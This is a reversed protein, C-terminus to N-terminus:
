RTLPRRDSTLSEAGERKYKLRQKLGLLQDRIKNSLLVEIYSNVLIALAISFGTILIVGAFGQKASNLGISDMVNPYLLLVLPHSLYLSYSIDGLFNFPKLSPVRLTKSGIACSAFFPILSIGWNCIGHGVDYRSIYQWGVLAASMVVACLAFDKRIEFKSHYLLGILVGSLFLFIIPNTVLNLYNVSLGYNIETTLRIPLGLALPTILIPAASIVFLATWRMKGFLMSLAFIAYFYIEFNLSWGVTLVPWGYVPPFGGGSPIFFLTSFLRSAGAIDGYGIQRTLVFYAITVLSYLPVIRSLRKIIFGTVDRSANESKTTAHVMIFGSIIFFLDVAMTSAPGFLQDGLGEGYPSIYNSAHFLVVLLAAIGRLDQIFAIDKKM